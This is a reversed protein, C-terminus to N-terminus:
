SKVEDAFRRAFRDIASRADHWTTQYQAQTIDSEYWKYDFKGIERGAADYAVGSLKAGGISFSRIPDLGIKDSVQQMTPRNPKADEITVVVREAAIGAFRQEIKKSIIDTLVEGERVGLDDDLKAKFDESFAAEVTIAHAPAAAIMLGALAALQIRMM